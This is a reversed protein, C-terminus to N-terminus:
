DAWALYAQRGEVMLQGRRGVPLCVKLPVHGFPLGSLIPVATLSRLHSVASSLRYGRDLPSPTWPSFDGLLIARQRELVGAQHLQLLMREVRYPHEGVDELFLIGRNVEPWHRTGLLSCVMTLNGGWLTGKVTLGDHGAEVRFGVAELSGEMAEQFVAATTDRRELADPTEVQADYGFDDAAMPGHWSHRGTHALLGLQLATLDSYGVWRTGEDVSHAIAAWDLRDLLRSLGYGGRAALAVSPSAQAVRHIAELRLDDDGAFRQHRARVGPDVQVQFGMATLRRRARQICAQSAIVGSPAHIQLTPKM